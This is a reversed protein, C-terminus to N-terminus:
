AAIQAAFYPVPYKSSKDTDPFYQREGLSQSSEENYLYRETDNGGAKVRTTELMSEWIRGAARM